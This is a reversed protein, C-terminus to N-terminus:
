ATGGSLERKRKEIRLARLDDLIYAWLESYTMSGIDDRDDERQDQGWGRLYEMAKTDGERALGIVPFALVESRPANRNRMSMTETMDQLEKKM